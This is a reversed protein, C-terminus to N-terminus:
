RKKRNQNKNGTQPKKVEETKEEETKEEEIEEVAASGDSLLKIVDDSDFTEDEEKGKKGQRVRLGEAIGDIYGQTVIDNERSVAFKMGRLFGETYEIPMNKNNITIRLARIFSATYLNLQENERNEKKIESQKFMELM